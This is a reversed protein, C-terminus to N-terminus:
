SPMQSRKKVNPRSSSLSGMKCRRSGRWTAEETPFILFLANMCNTWLLLKGAVSLVNRTVPSKLQQLLRVEVDVVIVTSSDAYYTIEPSGSVLLCTGVGRVNTPCRLVCMIMDKAMHVVLLGASTCVCRKIHQFIAACASGDEHLCTRPFQLDGECFEAAKTETEGSFARSFRPPPICVSFFRSHLEGRDISLFGVKRLCSFFGAMSGKWGRLRQTLTLFNSFMLNWSSQGLTQMHMCHATQFCRKMLMLTYSASFAQLFVGICARTFRLLSGTSCDESVYLKLCLDCLSSYMLTLYPKSYRTELTRYRSGAHLM